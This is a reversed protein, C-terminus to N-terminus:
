IEAHLNIINDGQYDYQCGNKAVDIV